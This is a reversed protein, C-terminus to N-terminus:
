PVPASSQSATMLSAYDTQKARYGKQKQREECMKWGRAMAELIREASKNFLVIMRIVASFTPDKLVDFRLVGCRRVGYRGYVFEMQGRSGDWEVARIGLRVKSSAKRISGQDKLDWDM